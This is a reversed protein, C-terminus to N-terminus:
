STALLSHVWLAACVFHPLATPLDALNAVHVEVATISGDLSCALLLCGNPHWALDSVALGFSESLVVVPKPSTTVWVSISQDTSGIACVADVRHTACPPFWEGHLTFCPYCLLVYASSSAVANSSRFLTPNFRAAGVVLSHGVFSAAVSWDKRALVPATMRPPLFGNTTSLFRGDPSWDMHATPGRHQLQTYPETILAFVRAFKYEKDVIWVKVTKDDGFTAIYQV